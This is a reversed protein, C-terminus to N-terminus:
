WGDIGGWWKYIWASIMTGFLKLCRVMSEGTGAWCTGDGSPHECTRGTCNFGKTGTLYNCNYGQVPEGNTLKLQMDDIEFNECGVAGSCQFSCFPNRQITGKIDTFSIDSIKFLSSNCDGAAGSFTTCQSISIPTNRVNELTFNRLRINKADILYSTLSHM